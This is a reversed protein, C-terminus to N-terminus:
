LVVEGALMRRVGNFVNLNRRKMTEIVSMADCYNKQGSPKRFGGSVKQKNKCKRLDRESMNNTFPVDFDRLFLLHNYQYKEMRMLLDKEKDLFYKSKKSKKNQEKGQYIIRIYEDYYEWLEEDGIRTIGQEILSARYKNLKSLFERMEKAWDNGTDEEDKRLYRIIHANCEAHDIGFNFLAVEHDHVLIGKYKALVGSKGIMEKTKKAMPCYLVACPNSQNRIFAQKGNVDINTADTYLIKGSNLSEMIKTISGSTNCLNAFSRTFNYIAGMSISLIPNQKDNPSKNFNFGSNILDNLFDRTRSVSVTHLTNLQIAIARLTDGYCVGSKLRSSAEEPLSVSIPLRYEIIKPVIELDIVYYSKYRHKIYRDLISFSGAYVIEHKIGRNNRLLKKITKRTLTSGLHGPQGGPKNESKVRGNYENPAKEKYPKQDTSPPLSSNSSNNAIISRLKQNEEKLAKNEKRLKKVETRLTAKEKELKNIRRELQDIKKMLKDYFYTSSKASTVYISNDSKITKM